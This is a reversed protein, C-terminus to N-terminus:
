PKSLISGGVGVSKLKALAKEAAERSPFPGARVRTKKGSSTDITEVSAKVGAESMKQQLQKVNEPSSFTGVSIVHHQNSAPASPADASPMKGNLIAVARESDSDSVAKKPEHKEPKEAEKPKEVVHERPKQAEKAAEKPVEKKETSQRTENVVKPKVVEHEVVHPMTTAVKEAAAPVSPPTQSSVPAANKVQSSVEAKPQPLPTSAATNTPAASALNSASNPIVEPTPKGAPESEGPVKLAVPGSAPAPEDDMVMPLMIAALLAFVVAGVLRRRARKKLLLQADPSDSM